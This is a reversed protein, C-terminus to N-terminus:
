TRRRVDNKRGLGVFVGREWDRLDGWIGFSVSEQVGEGDGEAVLERCCYALVLGCERGELRLLERKSLCLM